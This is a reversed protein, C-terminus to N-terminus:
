DSHTSEENNIGEDGRVTQVGDEITSDISASRSAKNQDIIKRRTKKLDMNFQRSIKVAKIPRQKIKPKHKSKPGVKPEVQKKDKKTKFLVKSEKPNRPVALTVSDGSTDLDFFRSTPNNSRKQKQPRSGNEKHM